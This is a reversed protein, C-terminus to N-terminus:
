GVVWRTSRSEGDGSGGEVDMKRMEVVIKGAKLHAMYQFCELGAARAEVPVVYGADRM